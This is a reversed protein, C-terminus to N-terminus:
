EVRVTGGKGIVKQPEGTGEPNQWSPGQQQSDLETEGGQCEGAWPWPRGELKM